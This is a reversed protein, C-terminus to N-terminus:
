VCWTKRRGMHSCGGIRGMRSVVWDGGMHARKTSRMGGGNEGCTVWGVGGWGLAHERGRRKGWTSRKTSVRGTCCTSSSTWYQQWSPTCTGHVSGREIAGGGRSSYSEYGGLGGRACFQPVSSSVKLDHGMSVWAPSHSFDGFCIALAHAHEQQFRAIIRPTKNRESSGNRGYTVWIDSGMRGM